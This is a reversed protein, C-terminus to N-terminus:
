LKIDISAYCLHGTFPHFEAYIMMPNGNNFTMKSKGKEKYQLEFLFFWLLPRLWAIWLIDIRIASCNKWIPDGSKIEAM